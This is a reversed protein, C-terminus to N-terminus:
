ITIETAVFREAIRGADFPLPGNVGILMTDGYLPSGWFTAEPFVSRFTRLILDHQEETFEFSPVWQCFVGGPALRERALEFFERTFLNVM